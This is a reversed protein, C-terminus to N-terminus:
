RCHPRWPPLIQGSAPFNSSLSLPSLSLPLAIKIGSLPATPRPYPIHSSGDPFNGSRGRSLTM